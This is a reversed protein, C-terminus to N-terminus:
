SFNLFIQRSCEIKDDYSIYGCSLGNQIFLCFDWIKYNTPIVEFRGSKLIFPRCLCAQLPTKLPQQRASPVKQAFHFGDALLQACGCSKVFHLTGALPWVSNTHGSNDCFHINQFNFGHNKYYFYLLNCKVADIKM